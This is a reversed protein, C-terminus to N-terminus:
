EVKKYTKYLKQFLVECVRKDGITCNKDPHFRLILQKIQKRTFKKELEKISNCVITKELDCETEHGNTVYYERLIQWDHADFDTSKRCTRVFWQNKVSPKRAEFSFEFPRNTVNTSSSHSPKSKLSGYVRSINFSNVKVNAGFLYQLKSATNRGSNKMQSSGTTTKTPKSTCFRKEPEDESSEDRSSILSELSSYRDSCSDSNDHESQSTAYSSWSSTTSNDSEASTFDSDRSSESSDEIKNTSKAPLKVNTKKNEKNM